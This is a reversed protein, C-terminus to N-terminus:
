DLRFEKRYQKTWTRIQRELYGDLKGFSELGIKVPDCSLVKALAEVVALYLEKNQNIDLSYHIQSSWVLHSAKREAKPM